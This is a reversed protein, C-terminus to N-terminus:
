VAGVTYAFSKTPHKTLVHCLTCEVPVVILSVIGV